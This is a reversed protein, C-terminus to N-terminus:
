RTCLDALDPTGSPWLGAIDALSLGEHLAVALAAAVLPAAFSTGTQYRGRGREDLTWIDQGPARWFVSDGGNSLPLLRLQNDTAAVATVSDYAAPYLVQPQGANGAAAVLVISASLETLVQELLASYDGGFSMNLVSPQYAAVKDLGVLLWDTRTEMGGAGDDAFVNVALLRAAPLLGAVQNQGVMLAAVGSGHEHAAAPNGTTDLTEVRGGFVALGPDVASDMIAIRLPQRCDSPISAGLLQQAYHRRDNALLQYRQNAEVTWETALEAHLKEIDIENPVRYTSLVWGLAPLHRRSVIRAGLQTLRKRQQEAVAMDPAQLLLQRLPPLRDSSSTSRQPAQPTGANMLSGTRQPSANTDPATNRGPDTPKEQRM